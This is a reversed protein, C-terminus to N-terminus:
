KELRVRHGPGSKTRDVCMVSYLINYKFLQRLYARLNVHRFVIFHTEESM